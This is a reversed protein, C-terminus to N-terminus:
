SDNYLIMISLFSHNTNYIVVFEFLIERIQSRYLTNRNLLANAFANREKTAM